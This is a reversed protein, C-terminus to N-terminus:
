VTTSAMGPRPDPDEQVIGAGVVSKINFVKIKRKNFIGAQHM